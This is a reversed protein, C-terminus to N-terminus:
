KKGKPVKIDLTPAADTIVLMKHVLKVIQQATESGSEADQQLKTYESKLFNPTWSVLRDAIFAGENGVKSIEDLTKEVVANEELNYNYKIVAKLEYGNGLQATNTGEKKEPFARSVIYKRMEMEDAKAEALKIKLDEWIMLLEDQSMQDRTKPPNYWKAAEASQMM